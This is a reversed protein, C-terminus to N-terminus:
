NINIGWIEKAKNIISGVAAEYGREGSEYEFYTPDNPLVQHLTDIRTKTVIDKLFLNSEMEDILESIFQEIKKCEVYNKSPLLNITKLM